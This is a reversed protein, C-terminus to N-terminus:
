HSFRITFFRFLSISHFIQEACTYTMPLIDAVSRANVRQQFSFRVYAEPTAM